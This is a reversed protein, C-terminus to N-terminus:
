TCIGIALNPYVRNYDMAHFAADIMSFDDGFIYGAAENSMKVSSVQAHLLNAATEKPVFQPVVITIIDNPQRERDITEIYEVLPEMLLRYPSELVVLRVGDGYMAWKERVKQSEQTDV